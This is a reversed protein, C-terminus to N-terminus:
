HPLVAGVLKSIIEIAAVLAGILMLQSNGGVSRKSKPPESLAARVLEIKSPRDILPELATRVIAVDTHISSIEAALKGLQEDHENVARRLEDVDRQVLAVATSISDQPPRYAM